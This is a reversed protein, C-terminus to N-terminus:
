TVKLWQSQPGEPTGLSMTDSPPGCNEWTQFAKQWTKPAVMQNGGMSLALWGLGTPPEENISSAM